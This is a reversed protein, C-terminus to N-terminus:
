LPQGTASKGRVPCLVREEEEGGMGEEAWSLGAAGRAGKELLKGFRISVAWSEPQIERHCKVHGAEGKKLYRSETGRRYLQHNRRYRRPQRMKRRDGEGM